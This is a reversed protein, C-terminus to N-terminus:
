TLKCNNCCFCEALEGPNHCVLNRKGKEQQKICRELNSLLSHDSVKANIQGVRAIIEKSIELKIMYTQSLMSVNMSLSKKCNSYQEIQNVLENCLVHISHLNDKLLLKRNKRLSLDYTARLSNFANWSYLLSALTQMFSQDEVMDDTFFKDLNKM